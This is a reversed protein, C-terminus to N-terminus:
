DRRQMTYVWRFDRPANKPARTNLVETIGITCNREDLHEM